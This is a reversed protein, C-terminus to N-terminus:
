FLERVGMEENREGNDWQRREGTNTEERKNTWGIKV